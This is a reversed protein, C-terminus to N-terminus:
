KVALYLTAGSLLGAAVRWFWLEIRATSLTKQIADVYSGHLTRTENLLEDHKTLYFTMAQHSESAIMLRMKLGENNMQLESVLQELRESNLILEEILEREPIKELPETNALVLSFVSLVLFLLLLDRWM